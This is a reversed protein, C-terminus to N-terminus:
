NPTTRWDQGYDDSLTKFKARTTSQLILPTNDEVKLILMCYDYGYCGIV